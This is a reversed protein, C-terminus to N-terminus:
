SLPYSPSKRDCIAWVLSALWGIATWGLFFNLIMIAGARRTHRHVAIQSPLLYIWAAAAAVVLLTLINFLLAFSM